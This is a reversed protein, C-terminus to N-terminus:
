KAHNVRQCEEGDFFVVLDNTEKDAMVVVRGTYRGGAIPNSSLIEPNTPPEKNADKWVVYVTVLWLASVISGMVGVALGKLLILKSFRAM